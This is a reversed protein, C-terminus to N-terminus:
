DTQIFLSFFQRLSVPGSKVLLIGIYQSYRCTGLLKSPTYSMFFSLLFITKPSSPKDHKWCFNLWSSIGRFCSDMCIWSFFRTRYHFHAISILITSLWTNSCNKCHPGILFVLTTFLNRNLNRKSKSQHQNADQHFFDHRQNRTILIKTMFFAKFSNASRPKKNISFDLTPRFVVGTQNLFSWRTSM